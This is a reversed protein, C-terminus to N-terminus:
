DFGPINNNGDTELVEWKRVIGSSGAVTQSLVDGVEIKKKETTSLTSCCSSSCETGVLTCSVLGPDTSHLINWDGGETVEGYVGVYSGVIQLQISRDAEMSEVADALSKGVCEKLKASKEQCGLQKATETDKPRGIAYAFRNGTRVWFGSRENDNESVLTLALYPADATGPLRQWGEAYSADEGTERLEISGDAAAADSACVGVDLGGSPPQYDIDRRWFCTCLPLAGGNGDKADAALQALVTDKALAEGSTTDGVSYQLVGAFSKQHFLIATSSTAQPQEQEQQSADAIGTRISFGRAELSSPNPAYGAAKADQRSRGPSGIPLRIDVYVGSKPAQTWLVLTDRDAGESDGLPDEEWLRKWVGAVPQPTSMITNCRLTIKSFALTTAGLQLLCLAIYVMWFASTYFSFIEKKTKPRKQIDPFQCRFLEV